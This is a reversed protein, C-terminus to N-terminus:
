FRPANPNEFVENKFDSGLGFFISKLLLFLVIILIKLLIYSFIFRSDLKSQLDLIKGTTTFNYINKFIIM